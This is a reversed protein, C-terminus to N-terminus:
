LAAISNQVANRLMQLEVPDYNDLNADNCLEGVIARLCCAIDSSGIDTADEFFWTVNSAVVDIVADLSNTNFISKM